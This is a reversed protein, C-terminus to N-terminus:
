ELVCRVVRGTKHAATTTIVALSGIKMVKGGFGGGLRKVHCTIKNADVGLTIGLWKRLSRQISAPRMCTWKGTREARCLSSSRGGWTSRVEEEPFLEEVNDFWLRRNRVTVNAHARSSTVMVLFLEEQFTPMDNYYKAEGTAQYSQQGQSVENKFPKLASLYELPLDSIGVGKQRLEQLMQLYFKFLFSLTLTKWFEVKGGHASPSLTVEDGLLRCAEGLLEEDWSRGALEECTHGAKVLTPGVGGYYINLSQVVDTDEAFVVKMGANVISFAFERRQAQPFASIFEWPSSHPIHVSFLVEDPRLSTKGFGTFLEENLPIERSGDHVSCGAAALICNHDYKPNASLTNGRITAMNRTQKGALCHLTQRLAQYTKSKEQDLEQVAKELEDRLEPPSILDQSPDLPLVDDMRFLTDSIDTEEDQHTSGNEVCGNNRGQGNQCCESAACFTKFGDVIHWYGTCRCLNGGLAERIDEMTPQPKNRLLAYMSMVMGPTCFGCQSGHAKAIREQVPHLKTKTSGIGEVTVVAAGHLSCIPLLCANVTGQAIPGM